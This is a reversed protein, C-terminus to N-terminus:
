FFPPSPILFLDEGRFISLWVWGFKASIIRLHEGKL